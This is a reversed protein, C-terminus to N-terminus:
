GNFGTHSMFEWIRDLRTYSGIGPSAARQFCHSRKAFTHLVGQVGMRHPQADPMKGEPWIYERACPAASPSLSGFSACASVAVGVAAFFLVQTRKIM